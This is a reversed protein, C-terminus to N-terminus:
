SIISLFMQVPRQKINKQKKWKWFVYQMSEANFSYSSLLRLFTGDLSWAPSFVTDNHEPRSLLEDAALDIKM